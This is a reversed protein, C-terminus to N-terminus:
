GNTTKTLCHLAHTGESNPHEVVFYLLGWGGRGAHGAFLEGAGRKRAIEGRVAGTEGEPLPPSVTALHRDGGGAPPLNCCYKLAFQPVRWQHLCVSCLHLSKPSAVM